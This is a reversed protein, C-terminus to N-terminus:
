AAAAAAPEIAAGAPLMTALWLQQDEPGRPVLALWSWGAPLDLTFAGGSTAPQAVPPAWTGAQDALHLAPADGAVWSVQVAAQVPASVGVWVGGPAAATAVGNWGPGPVLAAPAAVAVP